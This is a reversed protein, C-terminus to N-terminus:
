HRAAYANHISRFETGGNPAQVTTHIDSVTIEVGTPDHDFSVFLIYKTSPWWAARDTSQTTLTIPFGQDAADNLLAALELSDKFGARKFCAILKKMNQLQNGGIEYHFNGNRNDCIELLARTVM